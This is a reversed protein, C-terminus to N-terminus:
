HYFLKLIIMHNFYIEIVRVSKLIIREYVRYVLNKIGNSYSVRYVLNKMGYSYSVRYTLSTIGYSYSVRYTLNTIGYSVRYVLTTTM